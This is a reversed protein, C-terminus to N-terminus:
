IMLAPPNSLLRQRVAEYLLIASAIAVNLSETDGPMPITIKQGPGELMERSLGRSENGVVIACGECLHAQWPHEGGRPVAKYVTVGRDVLSRLIGVPDPDQSEELRVKFVAGASSRICKPSFVDASEGSFVAATVGAAAAARILTGANGPDQIDFGYLYLPMKWPSRPPESPYVFPFPLVCLVGQPSKMESMREFLADSVAFVQPKPGHRTMAKELGAYAPSRAFADSMVLFEVAAGSELAYSVSPPGEAVTLRTTLREKKASLSKVLRWPVEQM